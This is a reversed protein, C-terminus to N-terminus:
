GELCRAHGTPAPASIMSRTCATRSERSQSGDSSTTSTTPVVFDNPIADGRGVTRLAEAALENTM